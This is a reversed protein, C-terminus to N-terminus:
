LRISVDGGGLFVDILRSVVRMKGDEKVFAIDCRLQYHGEPLELSAVKAIASAGFHQITAVAEAAEDAVVCSLKKISKYTLPGAADPVELNVLNFSIQHTATGFPTQFNWVVASITLFLVVMSMIRRWSRKEGDKM